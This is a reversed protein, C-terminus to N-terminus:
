DELKDKMSGILKTIPANESIIIKGSVFTGNSLTLKRGNENSWYYGNQSAADTRLRCVVATVPGEALFQEAVQNDKGLVYWLNPNEAPYAGVEEIWAEMHGYKQADVWEPSILVKMDKKLQGAKVTPVYFVAAQTSEAQPTYRILEKGPYIEEGAEVLVATVQGSQEALVQYETGNGGKLVATVEGTQVQDGAKKELRSVTGYNEACIVGLNTESVVMGSAQLTEPLTGFISWFIVAVFVLAAGLLALWSLPSTIRLETDLQEPSSLRELSTKRYIQAMAIEGM